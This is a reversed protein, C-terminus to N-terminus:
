KDVDVQITRVFFDKLNEVKADMRGQIEAESETDFGSEELLVTDTNVDRVEYKWYKM